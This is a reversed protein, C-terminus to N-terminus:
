RVKRRHAVMCSSSVILLLSESATLWQIYCFHCFVPQIMVGDVSEVGIHTGGGLGVGSSITFAYKVRISLRILGYTM